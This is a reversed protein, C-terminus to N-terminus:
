ILLYEVIGNEKWAGEIQYASTAIGFLFDRPFHM